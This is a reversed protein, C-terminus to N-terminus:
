RADSDRSKKATSNHQGAEQSTKQLQERVSGKGQQLDIPAERRPYEAADPIESISEQITEDVDLLESVPSPWHDAIYKLPNKLALLSEVEDPKYDFYEKMYSHAEQMNAIYRSQQIIDRKELKLLGANFDNFNEDLITKLQKIRVQYVSIGADTLPFREYAKIIKLLECIPFSHEYPNDEWCWRAVDLPSQFALLAEVEAATFEHETKLYCHVQSLMELEYVAYITLGGEKQNLSAAQELLDDDLRHFLEYKAKNEIIM